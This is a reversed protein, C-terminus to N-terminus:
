LPNRLTHAAEAPRLQREGSSWSRVAVCWCRSGTTGCRGILMTWVDVETTSNILLAAVVGTMAQVVAMFIKALASSVFDDLLMAALPLNAAPNWGFYLWCEIFLCWIPVM